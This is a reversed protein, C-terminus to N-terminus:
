KRIRTHYAMFSNRRRPKKMLIDDICQTVTETSFLLPSEDQDDIQLLLDIRKQLQEIRQENYRIWASSSSSDTLCLDCYDYRPQRQRPSNITLSIRPSPVYGQLMDESSMGPMTRYKDHTVRSIVFSSSASSPRPPM